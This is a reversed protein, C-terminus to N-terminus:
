YELVDLISKSFLVMWDQQWAQLALKTGALDSQAIGCENYIIWYLQVEAGM